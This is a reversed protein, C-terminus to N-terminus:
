KDTRPIQDLAEKSAVKVVQPWVGIDQLEKLAVADSVYTRSTGNSVFTYSTGRQKILFSVVEDDGLESEWYIDFAEDVIRDIDLTGPDSRNSAVEYHGIVNRRNIPIRYRTCRSIIWNVVLNWQRSGPRCTRHMSIAFGEIEISLSQYNLSINSNTRIPYRMGTTVGNAIAGNREPVLQYLDGDNDAYYHTSGGVNPRQFWVPTSEYDDAPEEPTHLVLVLPENVPRLINTEHAPVVIAGKIDPKFWETM